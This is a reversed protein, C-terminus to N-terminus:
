RRPPPPKEENAPPGQINRAEVIGAYCGLVYPPEATVHYHYIEDENEPTAGVHGNCKNLDDPPEGKEGLPGYIPFGDFAYGILFSHQDPEDLTESICIPNQHYHYLGRQDPHGNCDDFVEVEVADQHLANYQNFFLAGTIAIGIPGMPTESPEEALEPYLPIYFRYAQEEIRNPNSRNPFDGVEHNPIGDSEFIMFDDEFTITVNEAWELNEMVEQPDFDDQATTIGVFIIISLILTFTTRWM